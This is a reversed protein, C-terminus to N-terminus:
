YKNINRKDKIENKEEWTLERIKLKYEKGLVIKTPYNVPIIFGIANGIKCPKKILTEGNLISKKWM